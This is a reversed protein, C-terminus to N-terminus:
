EDLIESIKDINYLPINTMWDQQRFDSMSTRVAYKPKYKDCFAKLSKAKLNEWIKPNTGYKRYRVGFKAM